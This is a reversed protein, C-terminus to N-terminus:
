NFFHYFREWKTVSERERPNKELDSLLKDINKAHQVIKGRLQNETFMFYSLIKLPDTTRVILQRIEERLAKIDLRDLKSTDIAGKLELAVLNDNQQDRINAFFRMPIEELLRHINNSAKALFTILEKKCAEPSIDWWMSVREAALRISGTAAKEATFLLILDILNEYVKYNKRVHELLNREALDYAQQIKIEVNDDLADAVAGALALKSVNKIGSATAVAIIHPTMGLVKTKTDQSYPYSHRTHRISHVLAPAMAKGAAKRQATTLNVEKGYREIAKDSLRDAMVAFSCKGELFDIDLEFPEHIFKNEIILKRDGEPRYHFFEFIESDARIDDILWQAALPMWDMIMKKRTEGGFHILAIHGISQLYDQLIDALQGTIADLDYFANNSSNVNIENNPGTYDKQESQIVMRLTIKGSGRLWCEKDTVLEFKVAQLFQLSKEYTKPTLWALAGRRINGVQEDSMINTKTSAGVSSM